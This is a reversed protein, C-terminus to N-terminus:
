NTTKDQERQKAVDLHRIILIASIIAVAILVAGLVTIKM